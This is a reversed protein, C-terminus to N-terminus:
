DDSKVLIKPTDFFSLQSSDEREYTVFDEGFFKDSQDPFLEVLKLAVRNVIDRSIDKSDCNFLIFEHSVAVDEPYIVRYDMYGEGTFVVSVREDYDKTLLGFQRLEGDRLEVIDTLTRKSGNYKRNIDTYVKLSLLPYKENDDGLLTSVGRFIEDAKFPTSMNALYALLSKENEPVYLTAYKENAKAEEVPANIDISLTQSGNKGVSKKDYFSYRVGDSSRTCHISLPYKGNILKYSKECLDVSLDAGNNNVKCMYSFSNKLQDAIVVGPNNRGFRRHFTLIYYKWDDILFTLDVKDWEYNTVAVVKATNISSDFSSFIGSLVKNVDERNELNFLSVLTDKYLDRMGDKLEISPMYEKIDM